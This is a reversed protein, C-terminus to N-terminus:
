DHAPAEEDDDPYEADCVPCLYYGTLPARECGPCDHEDNLPERRGM